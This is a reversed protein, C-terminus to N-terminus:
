TKAIERIDNYRPIKGGRLTKDHISVSTPWTIFFIPRFRSMATANSLESDNRKNLRTDTGDRCLSDVSESLQPMYKLCYFVYETESPLIQM